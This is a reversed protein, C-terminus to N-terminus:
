AVLLVQQTLHEVAAQQVARYLAVELYWAIAMKELIHVM